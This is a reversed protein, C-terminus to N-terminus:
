LIFIWLIINKSFRWMCKAAATSKDETKKVKPVPKARTKAKKKSWVDEDELEGMFM